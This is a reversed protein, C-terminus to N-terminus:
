ENNSLNNNYEIDIYYNFKFTEDREIIENSTYVKSNISDYIKNNKYIVKDNM